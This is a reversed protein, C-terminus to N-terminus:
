QIILNGDNVEIGSIPNANEDILELNEFTIDSEGSNTGVLTFYFLVGNGSIGDYGETQTFGITISLCGSEVFIESIVEANWMEGIVIPNAPLEIKTNDFTIEASFGFLDIVNDIQVFFTAEEGLNIVKESPEIMLKLQIDPETGNEGGCSIIIISIIILLINFYKRM